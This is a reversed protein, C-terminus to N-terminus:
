NEANAEQRWRWGAESWFRSHRYGGEDVFAAFEEQTVPARAISFPLIQVPHAWKENDFVFPEDATAGLWFEGGPIEVDGPLAGFTHRAPQELDSIELEGLKPASYGLTQRTYTFAETHMDAHFVSLRVFYAEVDSPEKELLREVVRDSVAHLYRLTENRNPLPLDWRTDHTIAASDYLADVDPRIPEQHAVHRLVWNEQLWALHGIEWALTNVIALELGMLQNDTLDDVLELTRRRADQVWEALQQSSM